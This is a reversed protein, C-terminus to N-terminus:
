ASGHGTGIYNKIVTQNKVIDASVGDAIVSGNALVFIYDALGLVFSLNHEILLITVSDAKLRLILEGLQGIRDPGFGSAPEDLMLMKPNSMLQRAIEVFRLDAMSLENLPRDLDELINMEQFIESVRESVRQQDRQLKGRGFLTRLPSEAFDKSGSVMLNEWVTMSGFGSPTQFTRSLGSRVIRWPKYTTVDEGDFLVKGTDPTVYGSMVNFLTTKGAGNPGILGTIEGEKASISVDTLAHLGGFHKSLGDTRLFAM